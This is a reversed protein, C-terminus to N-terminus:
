ESLTVQLRLPNESILPVLFNLRCFVLDMFNGLFVRDMHSVDETNDIQTIDESFFHAVGSMEQAKTVGYQCGQFGEQLESVTHWSLNRIGLFNKM